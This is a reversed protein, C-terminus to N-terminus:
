VYTPIRAGGRAEAVALRVAGMAPEVDLLRPQARPVVDAVRSTLDTLLSPVGRFAGGSLVLPFQVGRMELKEAVSRAALALEGAADAVIERAVADGEDM